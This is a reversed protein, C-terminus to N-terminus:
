TKLIFYCSMGAVVIAVPQGAYDVHDVALIPRTPDFPFLHTNKVNEPIDTGPRSVFM